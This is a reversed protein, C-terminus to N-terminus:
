FGLKMGFIYRKLIPYNNPGNQEPDGVEVNTVTFLNFGSISLELKEFGIQYRTTNFSYAIEVNKIRFYSANLLQFSSPQNIRNFGDSVAHLTPYSADMNDPTWYDYHIDRVGAPLQDGFPVLYSNANINRNQVGTAFIKARWNKFSGGLTIGYQTQPIRPLGYYLRDGEGDIVGDGNYDVYMLDGPQWQNGGFGPTPYNLAEDISNLYGNTIYVENVGIPKGTQRKHEPTLFPESEAVVRNENFGYTVKAFYNFGNKMVNSYNLSVEFGQKKVEGVNVQKFDASYGFYFPITNTPDRFIDVRRENFFDVSGLLKKNFLGFDVGLNQKTATEWTAFPNGIVSERVYGGQGEFSEGFFMDGTGEARYYDDGKDYEMFTGFYM